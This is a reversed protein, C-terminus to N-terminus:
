PSRHHGTWGPPTGHRRSRRATASPLGEPRIAALPEGCPDDAARQRDHRTSRGRGPWVTRLQGHRAPRDMRTPTRAGVLRGHAARRRRRTPQRTRRVVPVSARM